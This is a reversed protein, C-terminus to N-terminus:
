GKKIHRGFDKPTITNRSQLGMIIDQALMRNSYSVHLIKDKWYNNIGHRALEQDVETQLNTDNIVFLWQGDQYAEYQQLIFEWQADLDEVNATSSERQLEAYSARYGHTRCFEEFLYNGEM